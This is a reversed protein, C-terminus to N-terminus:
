SLLLALPIAWLRGRLQVAETGNHALIGARCGKTQNLFIELPAVDSPGWTTAAKVEIAISDRGEEVVFDVEHRGQVSWYHLRAGPWHASLIAALNQDVYTKFLAGRLPEDASPGVDKVGALYAALGPDTFFLKPSKILRSAKNKLFPPLRTIAFSTELLDLYRGATMSNLGADRGIESQKLIQGTRLAAMQMLRRFAILDAVQALSRVDRELYTQEFGRFWLSPDQDPALCVPPMGGRLIESPGVAAFPGRPLPPAAPAAQRSSSSPLSRFFTPLFPARDTEGVIERRDLPHLTFYVARGALSESLSRLLLFNASGSLLFRGPRRDRDIERKLAPFLEPCKQAEDITLPDNGALLAEPNEKAAELQAFDDFTIYRRDKFRLDERLLTTKGTQRMGTVAVAPMQRLAQAVPQALERPRYITM